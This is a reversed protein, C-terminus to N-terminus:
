RDGGFESGEHIRGQSRTRDSSKTSAEVTGQGSGHHANYVLKESCGLLEAAPASPIYPKKFFKGEVVDELV